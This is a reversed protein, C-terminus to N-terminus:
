KTGQARVLEVGLNTIEDVQEPRLAGLTALYVGQPSFLVSLQSMSSSSQITKLPHREGWEALPNQVWPNLVQITETQLNGFASFYPEIRGPLSPIVVAGDLNPLAEAGFGYMSLAQKFLMNGFSAMLGGASSQGTVKQALYLFGDQTKFDPSFWRTAPSTGM